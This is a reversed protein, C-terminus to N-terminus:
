RRHQKRWHCRGGRRPRADNSTLSCPPQRRHASPASYIAVPSSRFSAAAQPAGLNPKKPDCTFIPSNTTSTRQMLEVRGLRVHPQSLKAWLSGTCGHCPSWAAGACPASLAAPRTLAEPLSLDAATATAGSPSWAHATVALRLSPGVCARLLGPLSRMRNLAAYMIITVKCEGRLALSSQRQIDDDWCRLTGALAPDMLVSGM